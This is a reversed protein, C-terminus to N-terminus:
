YVFLLMSFVSAEDRSTASSAASIHPGSNASVVAACTGTSPPFSRTTQFLGARDLRDAPATIAQFQQILTEQRVLLDVDRAARALLDRLRDAVHHHAARGGDATRRGEADHQAFAGGLGVARQALAARGGHGEEPREVPHLLRDVELGFGFGDILLVNRRVSRDALQARLEDILSRADHGM